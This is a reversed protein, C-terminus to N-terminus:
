FTYPVVKNGYIEFLIDRSKIAEAIDYSDRMPDKTCMLCAGEKSDGHFDTGGSIPINHERAFDAAVAVRSNHSHHMNFVEIGDVSGLPTPEMKNRFPHAHLIVNRSNKFERYFTEIDTDVYYILKEIDDPCIGYILYDNITGRFRIEAGLAVNIGLTKSTDLAIFYDSLYYEALEEATRGAKHAETLHNTITLTNVSGNQSYLKVADSAPIISCASVPDTHCHLETRYKYSESLDKLDM